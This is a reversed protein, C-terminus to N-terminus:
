KLEELAKEINVHGVISKDVLMGQLQALLKYAQLKDTDKWSRLAINQIGGVIHAPTLESAGKYYEISIWKNGISPAKMLKAYSPKYGVRLASKYINAYTESTPNYYADLFAEQKPNLTVPRPARRRVAKTKSM